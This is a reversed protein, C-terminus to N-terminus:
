NNDWACRIIKKAPPEQGATVQSFSLLWWWALQEENKVTSPNIKSSINNIDPLFSM